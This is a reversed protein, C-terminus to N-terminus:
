QWRHDINSSCNCTKWTAEWDLNSYALGWLDLGMVERREFRPIRCGFAEPRRDTALWSQSKVSKWLGAPRATSFQSGVMLSRRGREAGGSDGWSAELRQNKQPKEPTFLDLVISTPQNRTHNTKGPWTRISKAPLQLLEQKQQTKKRVTTSPFVWISSTPCAGHCWSDVLRDLPECNMLIQEGDTSIVM